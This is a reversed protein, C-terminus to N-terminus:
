RLESLHHQLDVATFEGKLDELGGAWDFTFRKRAPPKAKALAAASLVEILAEVQRQSAPPLTEFRAVLVETSM